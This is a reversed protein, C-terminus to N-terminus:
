DRHELPLNEALTATESYDQDMCEDPVLLSRILFAFDWLPGALRRASSFANAAKGSARISVVSM